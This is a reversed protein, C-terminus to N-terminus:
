LCDSEITTNVGDIYTKCVLFNGYGEILSPAGSASVRYYMRYYKGSEFKTPDVYLHLGNDTQTKVAIQQVLNLSEDVIAIKIKVPLYPPGGLIHVALAEEIKVPCPFASCETITSAVTGDLSVTDSFNLFAQEGDSLTIKGWDNSTTCSGHLGLGQGLDDFLKICSFDQEQPIIPDKKPD